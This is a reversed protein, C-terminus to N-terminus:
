MGFEAARRISLSQGLTASRAASAGSGTGGLRLGRSFAWSAGLALGKVSHTNQGSVTWVVSGYVALTPNISVTAGSSMLFHNARAIRDHFSFIHELHEGEYHRSLPFLLGGHTRQLAGSVIITLSPAVAYGAEVDLNSRNVSTGEVREVLSFAYLSQVYATPLLPGLGRGVGGGVQLAKNRRGPASHGRFEYNHTPVIAGIFPAAVFGRPLAIGYRLAMRADQVTGHYIGTDLPGHLRDAGRHRAAVLAVNADFTFRDTLGYEASAVLALSSIQGKDYPKGTSDLHDRSGLAQYTVSVAGEGSAPLAVQGANAAGASLMVLVAAPAWPGVTTM